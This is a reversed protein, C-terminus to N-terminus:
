TKIANESEAVLDVGLDSRQRYSALKPWPTIRHGDKTPSLGPIRKAIQLAFHILKQRIHSQKVSDSEASLIWRHIDVFEVILKQQRRFKRPRSDLIQFDQDRVTHQRNFPPPRPGFSNGVIPIAPLFPRSPGPLSRQCKGGANTFLAERGFEGISDKANSQRFRLM